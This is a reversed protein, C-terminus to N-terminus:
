PYALDARLHRAGGAFLGRLLFAWWMEGLRGSVRSKIGAGIPQSLRQGPDTDTTM